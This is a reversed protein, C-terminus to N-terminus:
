RRCYNNWCGRMCSTYKKRCSTSYGCGKRWNMYCSARCDPCNSIHGSGGGGRSGGGDRGGRLMGRPTRSMSDPAASRPARPLKYYRTTPSRTYSQSKTHDSKRDSKILLLPPRYQALQLPNADGATEPEARLGDALLIQSSFVQLFLSFAAVAFIHGPRSFINM